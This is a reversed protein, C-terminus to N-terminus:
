AVMEYREIPEGRIAEVLACGLLEAVPPTVANGLLKVKDAHSKAVLIYGPTFAMAAAIEEVKLMRYLVADLDADTWEGPGTESTALGYRDKASLAGLPWQPPRAVGNTYYPVLLALQRAAEAQWTVLTQHGKTTLTRLPEWPSTSMHGNGGRETNNRMIMAPWDPPCALAMTATTTQAPLARSMSWTRVGPRREFTHGAAAYIIPEQDFKVMGALIRARTNPVLAPSAEAIPKGLDQWDIIAGAPTYYPEVVQNRCSYRPCRYVYQSGYKGMEADVKKFVQIADVEEDCVPCWARPRLWKNWDPDRGLSVHWYAVYLRDRSQPAWQTCRPRAHASNFAIIKVKYGLNRLSRIWSKWGIWSYVDVVNEVFGARVPKGYRRQVDELYAPVMEMLMRSRQTEEDLHPDGFLGPHMAFDRQKGRCLAWKTCEPSDTHLEAYPFKSLDAERLDGLHHKVDPFNAEATDHAAKWHNATCITQVGPIIDIGQVTGLAGAYFDTHTIDSM